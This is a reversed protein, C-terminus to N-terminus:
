RRRGLLNFLFNFPHGIVNFESSLDSSLIAETQLPWLWQELRQCNGMAVAVSIRGYARSFAGYLGDVDVIKGGVEQLPYALHGMWM